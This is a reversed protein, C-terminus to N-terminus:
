GHGILQLALPKWLPSRNLTVATLQLVFIWGIAAVYVPQLRKRTILDYGGIGLMLLGCPLYIRAYTPWFGDTGLLTVISGGLWRGFGADAIYLTALLILRKHASPNRRQLFAAATLTAFALMDTLQIALFALDQTPKTVPLGFLARHVTIATAIGLVVMIPALVMAAMGLKRHIDQRRARILLVQVTLVALWGSFAAAHFHVILPYPAEGTRVHRILDSGFGVVIGFWILVVYTLFFDRDWKHYPAFPPKRGTAVGLVAESM